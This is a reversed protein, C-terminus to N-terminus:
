GATKKEEESDTEPLYLPGKQGCASVALLGPLAFATVTVARVLGRRGINRHSQKFNERRDLENMKYFRVTNPNTM